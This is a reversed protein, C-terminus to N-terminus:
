LRVVHRRGFLGTPKWILGIIVVLLLIPLAFRVGLTFQVFAELIGIGIAVILAGRLNGLGSLVCVILAKLMPDYGMGPSLTTIMSLMIGSAASLAGSIGLVLAFVRGVRIGMLLAADRNQAIARVARGARTRELFAAVALLIVAGIAMLAISRLPIFILGIKFGGEVDLPQKLPYGGYVQLLTNELIFAVGITAIVVNVEFGPKNLLSRVVLVYMLVGICGGLVIAGILAFWTSVGLTTAFTFALYAGVSLMAGHAMNLVNLNGWTISLGIAGIAYMAGLTLGSVLVQLLEDGM